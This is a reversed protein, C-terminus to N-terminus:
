PGVLVYSFFQREPAGICARFRPLPREPAFFWPNRDGSPLWMNRGPMTAGHCFDLFILIKQFHGFFRKSELGFDALDEV